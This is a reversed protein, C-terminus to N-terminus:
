GRRNERRRAKRERDRVIEASKRQVMGMVDEVMQVVVVLGTDLKMMCTMIGGDLVSGAEGGIMMGQFEVEFRKIDILLVALSDIVDRLADREGFAVFREDDHVEVARAIALHLSKHARWREAVRGAVPIPSVRSKATLKAM